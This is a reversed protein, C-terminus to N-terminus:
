EPVGQPGLEHVAYVLHDQEAGQALALYGLYRAEKEVVSRSAQFGLPDPDLEGVGGHRQDGLLAEVGLEAGTRQPAGDLSPDIVRERAHDEFTREFAAVLQDNDAGPFALKAELYEASRGALLSLFPLEAVTDAPLAAVREAPLSARYRIPESTLKYVLVFWEHGRDIADEIVDEAYWGNFQDQLLPNIQLLSLPNVGLVITHYRVFAQPLSPFSNLVTANMFFHPNDGM